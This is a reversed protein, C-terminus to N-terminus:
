YFSDLSNAPISSVPDPPTFYLMLISCRVTGSLLSINVISAHWFCFAFVFLCWLLWGSFAGVPWIYLLKYYQTIVWPLFYICM